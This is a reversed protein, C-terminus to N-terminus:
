HAPTIQEAGDPHGAQLFLRTEGIAAARSRAQLRGAGEVEVEVELILEDAPLPCAERELGRNQALARPLEVPKPFGSHQFTETRLCDACSYTLTLPTPDEPRNGLFGFSNFAESSHSTSM